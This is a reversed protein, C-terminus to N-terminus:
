APREDIAGPGIPATRLTAYQTNFLSEDGIAEMKRWMRKVMDILVDRWAPDDALNCGEHPDQALNYLEDIGGPSFVYKWDDHWVIRQTYVFRQGFFEGYADRWAEPDASGDLVPRLSRGHAGPLAGAGCLDLLTPGLDVLSVRPHLSRNVGRTAIGPVRVVLPINYVEEYSTGVGKTALGHGGLMDGHDSTVVVITHDYQGTERLVDLIRGVQSDLFSIVAWYAATVRRWDTDTMESWVARMRRIVEPKGTLEDRLTPSTRVSALDYLNFFSEFPIYPDHPESTSV